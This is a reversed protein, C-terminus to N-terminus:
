ERGAEIQPNINSLRQENRCCPCLFESEGVFLPYSQASGETFDSNTWAVFVQKTEIRPHDTIGIVLEFLGDERKKWEGVKLSKGQSDEIEVFRGSENSPPGDFVIHINHPDISM